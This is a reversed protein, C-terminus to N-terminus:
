RGYILGELRLTPLTILYHEDHEKLKLLSHGVQRVTLAMNAKSFGSKQGNHGSLSVGHKRNEIFYATVPPHHSVQESVLSTTGLDQSSQDPFEGM